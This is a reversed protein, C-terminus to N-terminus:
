PGAPGLSWYHCSVWSTPQGKEDEFATRLRRPSGPPLALRLETYAEAPSADTAAVALLRGGEARLTLRGPRDFVARLVLHQTPDPLDLAEGMVERGGEPVQPGGPWLRRNLARTRGARPGHPRYGWAKEDKLRAVNLGLPRGLGPVPRVPVSQRESAHWDWRYFRLGEGPAPGDLPRLLGLAMWPGPDLDPRQEHLAAWRPPPGDHLLSELVAGRGHALALALAHETVGLLDRTPRGSYYALLGADGVAVPGEPLGALRLAANRNSLAYAKAGEYNRQLHWPWSAAGFLAWLSFLAASAPRGLGPARRLAQLCALGGLWLLPASPALYRHSHWGVPLQWSLLGALAALGAALATWLRRRPGRAQSFFGVLAALLLLPPFLPTAPNRSAEDGALGLRDQGSWFGMWAGKLLSVAYDASQGMQAWASLGERLAVSKPRLSDPVVGGALAHTLMSPCAALLLGALAAGAGRGSLGWTLALLGALLQGEPRAFALLGMAALFAGRRGLDYALVAALSLGLFLGTEMGNFAWGMWAGHSLLLLPPWWAPLAPFLRRGLSDMAVLALLLGALALLWAALPGGLGLGMLGTLLLFYLPSTVGTSLAADPSYRLWDGQLAQRAYQFYIAADDLPVALGEGADLVGPALDASRWAALHALSAALAALMILLRYRIM